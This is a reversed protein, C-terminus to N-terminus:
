EGFKLRIEDIYYVITRSIRNNRSLIPWLRIHVLGGLINSSMFHVLNVSEGTLDKVEWRFHIHATQVFKINVKKPLYESCNNMTLNQIM